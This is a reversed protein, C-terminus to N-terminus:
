RMDEGIKVGGRGGGGGGGGDKLCDRGRQRYFVRTKKKNKRTDVNMACVHHRLLAIYVIVTETKAEEREDKVKEFLPDLITAINKHANTLAANVAATRDATSANAVGM